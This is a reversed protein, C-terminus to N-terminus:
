HSNKPNERMEMSQVSGRLEERTRPDKKKNVFNKHNAKYCTSPCKKQLM